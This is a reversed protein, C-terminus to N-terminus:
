STPVEVVPGGCGDTGNDEGLEQEMGPPVFKRAIVRLGPFNWEMCAKLRRLEGRDCRPAYTGSDNDMILVRQGGRTTPEEIRLTGAYIVSAACSSHMAHKSAINLIMTDGRSFHLVGDALLTFTYEPGAHAGVMKRAEMEQERENKPASKARPGGGHETIMDLLEDGTELWDKHRRKLKGFLLGKGYMVRHVARVAARMATGQLTQSFLTRIRPVKDNYSQTLLKASLVERLRRREAARRANPHVAAAMKDFLEFVPNTLSHPLRRKKQKKRGEGTAAEGASDSDNLTADPDSFFSPIGNLQLTYVPYPEKKKEANAHAPTLLRNFYVKARVPPPAEAHPDPNHAEYVASAKEQAAAIPFRSGQKEARTQAGSPPPQPTHTDQAPPSQSSLLMTCGPARKETVSSEAATVGSEEVKTAPSERSQAPLMAPAPEPFPSQTPEASPELGSASDKEKVAGDVVLPQQREPPPTPLPQRHLHQEAM